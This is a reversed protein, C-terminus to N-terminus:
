TYNLAGFAQEIIIPARGMISMVLKAGCVRFVYILSLGLGARGIYHSRHASGSTAVGLSVFVM